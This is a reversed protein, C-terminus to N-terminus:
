RAAARAGHFLTRQLTWWAQRVAPQLIERLVRATAAPSLARPQAAAVHQMRGHSFFRAAPQSDSDLLFTM